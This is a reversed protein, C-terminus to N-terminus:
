IKEGYVSHLYFGVPLFHIINIWNSFFNLSPTFPNFIIIFCGILCIQYDTLFTKKHSIKLIM